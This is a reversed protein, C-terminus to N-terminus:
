AEEEGRAMRLARRIDKLVEYNNACERCNCNLELTGCVITEAKELAERMAQNQKELEAIRKKLNEIERKGSYQEKEMDAFYNM